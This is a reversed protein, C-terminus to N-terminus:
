EDLPVTDPVSIPATVPRGVPEAPAPGAPAPEAPMSEAAAQRCYARVLAGLGPVQVEGDEGDERGAGGPEDGPEGDGAGDEPGAEPGAGGVPPPRHRLTVGNGLAFWPCGDPEPYASDALVAWLDLSRGLLVGVPLGREYATRDLRATGGSAALTLVGRDIDALDAALSKGRVVQPRADPLLIVVLLALLAGLVVVVNPWALAGAAIAAVGFM